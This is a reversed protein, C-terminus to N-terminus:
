LSECNGVGKRKANWDLGALIVFLSSTVLYLYLSSYPVFQQRTGHVSYLPVIMLFAAMWYLTDRFSKIWRMGCRACAFIGNVFVDTLIISSLVMLAILVPASSMGEFEVFRASVGFPNALSSLVPMLLLLAGTQRCLLDTSYKPM